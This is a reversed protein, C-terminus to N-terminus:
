VVSNNTSDQPRTLVSKLHSIKETYYNMVGLRLVALEIKSLAEIDRDLLPKIAADLDPVRQLIEQSITQYYQTDYRQSVM